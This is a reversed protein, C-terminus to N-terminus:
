LLESDHLVLMDAVFCTVEGAADRGIWVPYSGDGMGSPYAILNAPADAAPDTIETIGHDGGDRAATLTRSGYLAALHQAASADVFAGTGSDVDFGYFHGDRLLRLDQGPLLALEWEQTRQETIRVRAATHNTLDVTTGQFESSNGALAIEVPYSGPPVTVTFGADGECTRYSPDRAVLRGTPLHLTGARLPPAVELPDEGRWPSTFRAGPTFLEDLHRPRFPAPPQWDPEASAPAAGPAPVDRFEVQALDADIGLLRLTGGWQGFEPVRFWRQSEPLDAMTHTSGGGEGKPEVVKRGRGGPMLDLTVRPAYPACEPVDDDAYHWMRQHLLFLRDEEIQRLDMELFRRRRSDYAWMGLHHAARAVHLVVAKAVAGADRLVVAYPEGAADRAAAGERTMPGTVSGSVADYGVGYAVDIRGRGGQEQQEQQERHSM